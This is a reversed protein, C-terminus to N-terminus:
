LEMLTPVFFSGEQGGGRYFPSELMDNQEPSIKEFPSFFDDKVSVCRLDEKEFLGKYFNTAVELM